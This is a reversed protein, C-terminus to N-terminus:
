LDALNDVRIQGNNGDWSFTGFGSAEPTLCAPTDYFIDAGFVYYALTWTAVRSAFTTTQNYGIFERYDINNDYFWVHPFNEPAGGPQTYFCPEDFPDDNQVGDQNIFMVGGKTIVIEDVM